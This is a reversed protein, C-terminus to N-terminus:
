KVPMPNDGQRVKYLHTYGFFWIWTESRDQELCKWSVIYPGMAYVIPEKACPGKGGAVAKVPEIAFIATIIWSLALFLFFGGVVKLQAPIGTKIRPDLESDNM